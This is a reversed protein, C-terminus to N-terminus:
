AASVQADAAPMERLSMATIEIGRETAVREVVPWHKAPIGRKPWHIALKPDVGIAEAISRIGGFMQMVPWHPHLDQLLSPPEVTMMDEHFRFWDRDVRWIAFRRHMWSETFRTGSEIIRVVRLREWCGAQLESARGSVDSAAWGIKTMPTVGARIVYIAM